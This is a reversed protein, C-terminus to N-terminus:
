NKDMSDRKADEAYAPLVDDGEVMLGQKECSNGDEWAAKHERPQTGRYRQWCFIVVQGVLMGVASATLGALVGLIAPVVIFRVVRSFTHALAGHPPPPPGHHGHHHPRGANEPEFPASQHHHHGKPNFEEAIGMHGPKFEGHGMGKSKGHCGKRGGKHSTLNFLRDKASSLLGRIRSVLLEQLCKPKGQCKKWSSRDPAPTNEISTKAIYLEGNPDVILTIAVTDVPVPHSEIDLITFRVDLFETEPTDAPSPLPMVELAYGVPMPDSEEGDELQQVARIPSPPVPPFIQRGNAM